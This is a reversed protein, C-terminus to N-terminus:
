CNSCFITSISIMCQESPFSCRHRLIGFQRDTGNTACITRISKYSFNFVLMITLFQLLAYHVTRDTDTFCKPIQTQMGLRRKWNRCKSNKLCNRLYERQLFAKLSVYLWCFRWYNLGKDYSCSFTAMVQYYIGCSFLAM